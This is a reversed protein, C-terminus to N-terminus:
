LLMLEFVVLFFLISLSIIRSLVDRRFNPDHLRIDSERDFHYSVWRVNEGDVKNYFYCANQQTSPSPMMRVFPLLEMPELNNGHRLYLKQNDLPITTEVLSQKFPQRTGM